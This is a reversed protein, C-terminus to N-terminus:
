LSVVVKGVTRGSEVQLHAAGMQDFSYIKSVHSKLDGSKMLDAILQMDNGNSHVLYFGGSINKVKAKEKIEDNFQSVISIIKGGSKIVELSNLISEVGLTDLVLDIDHTAEPLKQTIYDIHEDAGLSRIFEKNAASSTTIVYAGYYKAIQIAYHGVGGSGAHILVRDGKKIQAQQTLVQLATLAALTAAAAEQHSIHAPKHTLHDAPAAVYEAYARGAGPFNVMGFVEDGAKFYSSRSDTVTGSVDWGIIIPSQNSFEANKFVGNGSRTKVDVPNVSIAKVAILVKNDGFEPLPLERVVLNSASGPEKLVIAKM